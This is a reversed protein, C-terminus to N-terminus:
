DQISIVRETCHRHICFTGLLSLIGYPMGHSSKSWPLHTECPMGFPDNLANEVTLVQDKDGCALPTGMSIYNEPHVCM